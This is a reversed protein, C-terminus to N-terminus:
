MMDLAEAYAEAYAEVSRRYIEHLDLNREHIDRASLHRADYILRKHHPVVRGDQGIHMTKKYGNAATAIINVHPDKDGPRGAKDHTHSSDTDYGHRILTLRTLLLGTVSYAPHDTTWEGLRLVSGSVRRREKQEQRIM